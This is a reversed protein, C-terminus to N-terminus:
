VTKSAIYDEVSYIAANDPVNIYITLTDSDAVGSPLSFFTFVWVPNGAVRTLACTVRQSPIQKSATVDYIYSLSSDTLDFGTVGSITLTKASVSFVATYINHKGGLLVQQM